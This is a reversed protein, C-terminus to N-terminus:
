RGFWLAVDFALAGLACIALAGWVMGLMLITNTRQLFHKDVLRGLV